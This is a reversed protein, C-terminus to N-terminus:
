IWYERTEDVKRYGLKQYLRTAEKEDAYVTLRLVEAGRKRYKEAVGDLLAAAYGKNREGKKTFVNETAYVKKWIRWVTVFSVPVGNESYGWIKGRGKTLRYRIEGPRCPLGYAEKTSELYTKLAAGDSLDIARVRRDLRREAKQPEEPGSLPRELMLMRAKPAFGFSELFGAYAADGARCWLRLVPRDKKRGNGGHERHWGILASVLEGAAEVGRATK